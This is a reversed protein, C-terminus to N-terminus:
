SAPGACEMHCNRALDPALARVTAADDLVCLLDFDGDFMARPETGLVKSINGRPAAPRSRVAPFDLTIAGDDRVHRRSAGSRTDFAAATSPDLVGTSWLFHASAMTAHGCLDVESGRLSGACRLTRARQPPVFATEAQNMEMAVQQMWPDPRADDLLVVAAPNGTFAGDSFADILHLPLSM